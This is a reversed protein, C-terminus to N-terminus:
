CNVYKFPKQTRGLIGRVSHRNYRARVEDPALQGVFEWRDKRDYEIDHRTSYPDTGALQWRLIEYTERIVGQYVACAYKAAERRRGVQWKGRTAEYLAADSMRSQLYLRNLTFLLLPDVCGAPPAALNVLVDSALERGCGKADYGRVVNTLSGIGLTDIVSAEVIAAEDDSLGHRLIEIRPEFGAARIEAIKGVKVSESGDNLHSFARNGNGKGVYFIVGDRPDVYLYVYSGIHEIVEPPFMNM